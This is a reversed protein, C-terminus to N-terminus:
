SDFHSLEDELRTRLAEDVPSVPAGTAPSAAPAPRRRRRILLVTVAGAAILCVFLPLVYVIANFGRARPAALIKEGYQTSPVVCSNHPWSERVAELFFPGV